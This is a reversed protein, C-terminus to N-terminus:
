RHPLLSRHFRNKWEVSSQVNDFMVRFFLKIGMERIRTARSLQSLLVYIMHHKNFIQVEWTM